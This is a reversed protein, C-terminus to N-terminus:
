ASGAFGEIRKDLLSSIADQALRYERLLGRGEQTLKSGGGGAGGISTKLVKVGTGGELARIYEWARRYSMGVQAAGRSISGREQIAELLDAKGHCLPVGAGVELWVKARVKVAVM